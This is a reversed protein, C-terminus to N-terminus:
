GNQNENVYNELDDIEKSMLEKFLEGSINENNFLYTSILDLRQKNKSLLDKAKNYANFIINKIENDIARSTEESFTKSRTMDRGLFVEDDEDQWVSPGLKSSMGLSYIMKKAMGTAKKLDDSAGTTVKEFILEEAARGGLAFSIRDIIESKSNLFKDEEPILLTYGLASNGRPVITVKQIPDLNDLYYGMFAHGLEHYSLIKREEESIVKSKRAPGAIVREVAEEFDEMTMHNHKERLALLAAENILNELDAGVFGPTKAALKEPDVDQSIKKGKLHLKLIETRGKKDPADMVVKKDFRGPRLLAKDLVDPRNTAAMVIVGTENDFGDMEVLLSNLTQEREDNGGGLGAGRQRGIADLEDIFVISPSEEKAKKFLDRVRSAGVGVYLEVFDSGSIYFFPVNAEGAVARATLTKGTGPPGVLVIGKPMRAGLDLFDKPDKLYKVVSQLEEKAEEVGAVDDFTIKSKKPDYKRATTKGFSMGSAGGGGGTMMPRLLWFWFLIIIVIPLLSGLLSFWWNSALSKIYIIEINNQALQNIYQKDAVLPPAYSKIQVGENTTLTINGGSEITMRQVQGDELLNILQSYEIQRVGSNSMNSISFFFIVALILYIWFVGLNSKRKGNAM